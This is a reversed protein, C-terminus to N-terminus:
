YGLRKDVVNRLPQGARFRALNDLFVALADERWGAVQDASHPSLLVNELSWLPHGAPLPEERYVDLAAGRLAGSRLAAVLADEDVASGRGLNVLVAERKLRALAAASVLGRTASTEPLTLVLVDAERLLDPLAEPGAVVEAWEDAGAPAPRSRVAHVRMGLARARRAVARGIDGYGLVGMLQGAVRRPEFPEWRRAVQARLLRPVDRAFHLVAALAFEALADSFVGRSNTLVVDSEALAPFLLRDVGAPRSHVWALAPARALLPELLARGGSCYLAARAGAAEEGFDDPRAGFVV